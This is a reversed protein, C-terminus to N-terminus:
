REVKPYVHAATEWSSSITTIQFMRCKYLERPTALRVQRDKFTCGAVEACPTALPAFWNNCCWVTNGVTAEAIEKIKVRRGLVVVLVGLM